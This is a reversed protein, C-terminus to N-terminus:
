IGRRLIAFWRGINLLSMLAASVYTLAAATLLRRAHPEDGRILLGKQTLMPLARRFSADFETPLTAAHVLVGLLLTSLGILLTLGAISPARTLAALFPSAILVGAGLQELPRVLVVLRTRWTLPAFRQQHQIAHGVEHAAITVAALSRGDLHKPDLRVTRSTPDYHDAGAPAAEVAVASLGAEDLLRRAIQGGSFRYRDEPEAYKRMVSRVWLGPGLSIAFVVLLFLLVHM